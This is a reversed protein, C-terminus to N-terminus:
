EGKMKCQQKLLKEIELLIKLKNEDSLKPFKEMVLSLLKDENISSNSNNHVTQNISGSNKYVFNSGPPLHPRLIPELKLWTELKMEKIDEKLYKCIHSQNIGTEKALRSQGGWGVDDVAQQLAKRIEETIKM